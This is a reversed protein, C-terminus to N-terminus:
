PPPALRCSMAYNIAEVGDIGEHCEQRVVFGHREFFRRATRSAHTTLRPMGRRRAEAVTEALLTTAVGRRGVDPNVFLMDVYGDDGLDTFGALRGDVFALRTGAARRSAAWSDIDGHEAAWAEVEETSYDAGATERVARLFVTLTSAADADTYARLQVEDDYAVHEVLRRENRGAAVPAGGAREATVLSVRTLFAGM